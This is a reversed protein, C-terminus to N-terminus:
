VGYSEDGGFFPVRFVLRPFRPAAELYGAVSLQIVARPAGTGDSHEPEFGAKRVQWAAKQSRGEPEEVRRVLLAPISNHGPEYSLRHPEGRAHRLSMVLKVPIHRHLHVM